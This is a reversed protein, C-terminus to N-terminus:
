FPLEIPNIPVKKLVKQDPNVLLWFDPIGDLNTDAVVRENGDSSKGHSYYISSKEKGISGNLVSIGKQTYGFHIKESVEEFEVTFVGKSRDKVAARGENVPTYVYDDCGSVGLIVTALFLFRIACNM